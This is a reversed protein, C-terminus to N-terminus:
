SVKGWLTHMKTETLEVFSSVIMKHAADFWSMYDNNAVPAGRTKIRVVVVMKTDRMRFAPEVEIYMRGMTDPLKYSANWGMIEPNSLLKPKWNQRFPTLAEGLDSFDRWGIGKEIQNIYTLECQDINVEGLKEEKVFKCFEQFDVNFSEVLNEFRPYSDTQNLRRWNRLFQDKQLQILQTEDETIYWSRIALPVRLLTHTELNPKLELLEKQHVLPPNDSIKPYNRRVKAWFVGLHAATFDAFPVFQVGM